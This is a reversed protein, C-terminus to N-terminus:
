FDVMMCLIIGGKDNDDTHRFRYEKSASAKPARLVIQFL